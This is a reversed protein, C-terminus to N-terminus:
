QTSLVSKSIAEKNSFLKIFYIGTNISSIKKDIVNIGSQLQIPNTYIIRGSVDAVAVNIVQAIKCNIELKINKNNISIITSQLTFSSEIKNAASVIKSYDTSGNQNVMALRYFNVGNLPSIDSFNYSNIKNIKKSNLEGINIFKQGDDSREITYHSFNDEAAAEWQLDVKLNLNSAVFGSLKVPLIGSVMIKVTDLAIKGASNTVKLQFFYHGTVLNNIFTSASNPSAITGATPGAVKTWTYSTATGIASGKLTVSNTPLVVTIDSGAVSKLTPQVTVVATSVIIKITDVASKGTSNLVKLQFFYHGEVVNTVGTIASKPSTITGATPGAIKTWTYSSATGIASGKLTVSNTPLAIAMDSGAVAKLTTQTPVAVSASKILVVSTYPQLTISGTYVTNDVSVYTADLAITKVFNSPNYEFRLYDDINTPITTAEYFQIDDIYITSSNQSFQIFLAANTQSSHEGSFQIEHQEVGVSVSGKQVSTIIAYAGNWQQLYTQFSGPKAGKTKFKLVYKKSADLAGIIQSVQTFNKSTVNNTLKISGTGNIQSTGDWSITHVTPSSYGTTSAIGSIFSENPSKNSGTFVSSFQPITIPSPKSNADYKPHKIKWEDLSFLDIISSTTSNTIFSPYANLPNAYYNSDIIGISDLGNYRDDQYYPLQHADKSFFINNTIKNKRTHQYGDNADLISMQSSFTNNAPIYSGADYVTNGRIVINQAQSIYIGEYCDFISNNLINVNSSSADLYIGRTHPNNPKTTGSGANLSNFIFNSDIIPNITPLVDGRIGSNYIGGGDNKIFCFNSVSNKRIIQNNKTKVISIGNYGVSDITNQKILLNTSGINIGTSSSGEHYKVAKSIMGPYIGIRRITNYQITVGNGSGPNSEHMGIMNIDNFNSNQILFSNMNRHEIANVGAFSFDCNDITMNNCYSLNLLIDECGKFAIGNFSIQNRTYGPSNLMSVLNTLTAVQIAPPTSTYFLKIKGTAADYFWEGNQDLTALSNELFYGYGTTFSSGAPVSFNLKTGSHSTITTRATAFDVKRVVLDAGTFNPSSTLQNDTISINDVFSEYTNYGGNATNANPYRGMPTLVGNIVVMNLTALGGPVVAEWINNGLNAFSTITTLGTVIPKAGSGYSSFSVGNTTPTLTGYFTDGSKFLISDGSLYTSSNIKSISKWPSTSTLGSNTDSGTASIYFNKANVISACFFCSLLLLLKM